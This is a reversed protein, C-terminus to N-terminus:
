GWCIMASKVFFTHQATLLAVARDGNRRDFQYIMACEKGDFPKSDTWLNGAIPEEGRWVIDGDEM